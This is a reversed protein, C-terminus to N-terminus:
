LQVKRTRPKVRRGLACWGLGVTTRLKLKYAKPEPINGVTLETMVCALLCM